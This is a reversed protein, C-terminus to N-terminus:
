NAFWPWPDQLAVMTEKLNSRLCIVFILDQNCIHFRLLIPVTTTIKKSEIRSFFSTIDNDM